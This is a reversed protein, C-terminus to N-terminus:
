FRGGAQSQGTCHQGLGRQSGASRHAAALMPKFSGFAFMSSMLSVASKFARFWAPVMGAGPFLIEQGAHSRIGQSGWDPLTFKDRTAPGGGAERESRAATELMTRKAARESNKTPQPPRCDPVVALVVGCAGASERVACSAAGLVFCGSAGAVGACGTGWIVWRLLSVLGGEAVTVLPASFSTAVVMLPGSFGAAASAGAGACLLWLVM